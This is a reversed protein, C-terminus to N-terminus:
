TRYHPKYHPKFTAKSAWMCAHIVRDVRTEMDKVTVYWKEGAEVARIFGRLEALAGKL